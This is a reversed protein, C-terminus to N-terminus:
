SRRMENQFRGVEVARIDMVQLLSAETGMNLGTGFRVDRPNLFASDTM